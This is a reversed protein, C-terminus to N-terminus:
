MRAAFLVGWVCVSLSLSSLCVSVWAVVSHTARVISVCLRECVCVCVGICMCAHRQWYRLCAWVNNDMDYAYFDCLAVSNARHDPDVYGGLLYLHGRLSDFCMKHCSRATPGGDQSVSTSLCIWREAQWGCLSLARQMLSM